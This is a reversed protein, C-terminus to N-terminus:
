NNEHKSVMAKEFAKEEDKILDLNKYAALIGKAKNSTEDIPIQMDKEECPLILIEVLRYQLSEPIDIIGALKESSITTRVFEMIESGKRIVYFRGVEM